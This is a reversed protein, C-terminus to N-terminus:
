FKQEDLFDLVKKAYLVPNDVFAEVHQTGEIIWLKKPEQAKAYLMESNQYTITRDVTGHIFLVHSVESIYNLTNTRQFMDFNLRLQTVGMYFPFLLELLPDQFEPSKAAWQINAFASDAIVAFVEPYPRQSAVILSAVAGNSEGFLAINTIGSTILFAMAGEIDNAQFAGFAYVPGDCNMKAYGRPNYLLLNYGSDHLFQSYKVMDSMSGKYGSSLVIGENTNGPIFWGELEVGDSSNFRVEEYTLGLDSPNEVVPDWNANCIDSDIKINITNWVLIGMTAIIISFGLLIQM